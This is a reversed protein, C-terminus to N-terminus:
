ILMVGMLFSFFAVVCVVQPNIGDAQIIHRLMSELQVSLAQGSDPLPHVGSSKAKDSLKDSQM